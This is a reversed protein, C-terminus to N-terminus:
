PLLARNLRYGVGPVTVLYQPRRPEPELKSRLQRIYVRLYHIHNSAAPGWVMRLLEEHRVVRGARRVMAELLKYEHPTLAVEEDRRWATHRAADLVIEGVGHSGAISGGAGQLTRLTARIRALVEGPAFPKTVYDSAGRDLADIKAECHTHASLVIIPVDSTLRIRTIVDAGRMDPLGLDLLMLDVLDSRAIQIARGGSAVEITAYGDRELATKLLYRTDADDEVILVTRVLDSM